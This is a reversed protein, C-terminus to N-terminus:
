LAKSMLNNIIREKYTVWNSGDETLRPLNIVKINSSSMTTIEPGM